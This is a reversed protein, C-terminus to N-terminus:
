EGPSMQVYIYPTNQDLDVETNIDLSSLNNNDTLSFSYDEIKFELRMYSLVCDYNEISIEM